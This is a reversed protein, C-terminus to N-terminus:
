ARFWMGWSTSAAAPSFHRGDWLGAMSAIETGTLALTDEFFRPAIPMAAENANLWLGSKGHYSVSPKSIVFPWHKLWPQRARLDDYSALVDALQFAHQPLQRTGNANGTRQAIIARLPAASPYYVLEAEFSEGSIFPL